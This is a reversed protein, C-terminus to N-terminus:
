KKRELFWPNHNRYQPIDWGTGKWVLTLNSEIARGAGGNEEYAVFRGQNKDIWRVFLVVHGNNGWQRNNIADGPLLDDKSGLTRAYNTLYVTNPVSLGSAKLGWAMSVLGSCDTRYGSSNNTRDGNANAAVGQNYPIRKDVWVKARKVADSTLPPPTIIKGVTVSFQTTSSPSKPELQVRVGSEDGINFDRNQNSISGSRIVEGRSNLIKVVAESGGRYTVRSLNNYPGFFCTYVTTPIPRYCSGERVEQALLAPNFLLFSTSSISIAAAIKAIYATLRPITPHVKISTM